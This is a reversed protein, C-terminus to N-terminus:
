SGGGAVIEILSRVAHYLVFKDSCESLSERALEEQEELLADLTLISIGTARALLRLAETRSMSLANM